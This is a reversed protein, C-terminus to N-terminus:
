AVPTPGEFPDDAEPGMKKKGQVEQWSSLAKARGCAEATIHRRVVPGFALLEGMRKLRWFMLWVLGKRKMLQNIELIQSLFSVSV